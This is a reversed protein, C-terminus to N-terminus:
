DTQGDTQRDTEIKIDVQGMAVCASLYGLDLFLYAITNAMRAGRFHHPLAMLAREQTAGRWSCGGEPDCLRRYMCGMRAHIEVGVGHPHFRRVAYASLRRQMISFCPAHLTEVGCPTLFPDVSNRILMWKGWSLLQVGVSGRGNGDSPLAVEDRPLTTEAPFPVAHLLHRLELTMLSGDRAAALFGFLDGVAQVGCEVCARDILGKCLTDVEPAGHHPLLQPFSSLAHEHGSAQAVQSIYACTFNLADPYEHCAQSVITDMHKMTLHEGLSVGWGKGIGGSTGGGRLLYFAVLEKRAYLSLPSLRIVREERIRNGQTLESVWSLTSDSTSDSCSLILEVSEPLLSPVWTLSPVQIHDLGDIIVITKRGPFRKPPALYTSPMPLFDSREVSTSLYQCWVANLEEYSLEAQQKERRDKQSPLEVNHMVFCSATASVDESTEAALRATLWYMLDRVTNLPSIMGGIYVAVVAPPITRKGREGAGNSSMGNRLQTELAVLLTSKGSGPSGVVLIACHQGLQPSQPWCLDRLKELEVDRGVCISNMRARYGQHYDWEMSFRDFPRAAVHANSDRQELMHLAALNELMDRRIREGLISLSDLVVYQYGTHAGSTSTSSLGAFTAPYNVFCVCGKNIIEVKLDRLLIQEAPDSTTHRQRLSPLVMTEMPQARASIRRARRGEDLPMPLLARLLKIRIMMTASGNGEFDVRPTTWRSPILKSVSIVATGLLVDGTKEVGQGTNTNGDKRTGDEMASSHQPASEIEGTGSDKEQFAQEAGKGDDHGRASDRAQGDAAVSPDNFKLAENREVSVGNDSDSIHEEAAKRVGGERSPDDDDDKQLQRPPHPKITKLYISLQIQPALCDIVFEQSDFDWEGGIYGAELLGTSHVVKSTVVEDGIKIRAYVGLSTQFDVREVVNGNKDSEVEAVAGADAMATSASQFTPWVKGCKALFAATTSPQVELGERYIQAALELIDLVDHLVQLVELSEIHLESAALSLQAMEDRSVQLTRFKPLWMKAKSCRVDSNARIDDTGGDSRNKTHGNEAGGGYGEADSTAKVEGEIRATLNTSELVISTKVNKNHADITASDEGSSKKKRGFLSFFGGQGSKKAPAQLTTEYSAEAVPTAANASHEELNGSMGLDVAQEPAAAETNSAAANTAPDAHAQAPAASVDARHRQKGMKFGFAGGFKKGSVISSESGDLEDDDDDDEDDDDDDDDDADISLPISLKTNTDHNGRVRTPYDLLWRFVHM